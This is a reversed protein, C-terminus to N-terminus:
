FRDTRGAAAWPDRPAGDAVRIERNTLRDVRGAFGWKAGQWTEAPASGEAAAARRRDAVHAGIAAAIAAAEDADANPVAATIAELLAAPDDMGSADAM